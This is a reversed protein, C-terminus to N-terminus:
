LEQYIEEMLWSAEIDKYAIWRNRISECLYWYMKKGNNANLVTKNAMQGFDFCVISRKQSLEQQTMIRCWYHLEEKENWGQFVGIIKNNLKFCYALRFGEPQKDYIRINADQVARGDFAYAKYADDFQYLPNKKLIVEKLEPKIQYCHIVYAGESVLAGPYLLKTNVNLWSFYPNYLSYPNGFFYCRLNDSERNYTTFVEKFREAEGNLYKEGLRKNCIFEDFMMYRVNRVVKSKLRSLPASLGIYRIFRKGNLYVDLMGQKIEGKNYCLPLRFGIFKEFVTNMDEIDQETIDVIQRKFIISPQGNNKFANYMKKCMLVSKGAERECVIFAFPKNHGDAEKCDFHLDDCIFPLLEVVEPEAM